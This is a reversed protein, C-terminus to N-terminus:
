TWTSSATAPEFWVTASMFPGVAFGTAPTSAFSTATSSRGCPSAVTPHDVPGTGHQSTDTRLDGVVVAAVLVMVAAASGLTAALRRRRLRSEGLGVLADIDLDCLEAEGVRRAFTERLPKNM